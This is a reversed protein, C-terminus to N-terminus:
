RDADGRDTSSKPHMAAIGGARAGACPEAHAPMQARMWRHMERLGAVEDPYAHAYAQANGIAMASLQPVHKTLASASGHQQLLDVVEWIDLDTGAVCPRSGFPTERFVVGPFRRSRIAEELLGRIACSVPERIRQAEDVVARIISDSL